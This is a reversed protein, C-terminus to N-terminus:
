HAARMLTWSYDAQGARYHCSMCSNGGAGAADSQSQFYTEMVTNTVGNVPFAAGSDQAYVGGAEMTKFSQPQTPWQTFVLQYNQWVTGALAARWSTNLALTSDPITNLRAVQVAKRASKPQLMPAMKPPRDAWGGITAPNQPNSGNNFSYKKGAPDGAAPVSNPVNDVQEFTSWIWEPFDKLKQVIHFGILGVKQPECKKTLPDLVLSDVAYYRSADDVGPVLIRWAAKLMMSGQTSPASSAPMQLPEKAALNKVLYLWSSPDADSGRIFDYQPHNFRIEYVVYNLSQDILPYSFAQNSIEVVSDGKSYRLFIKMGAPVPTTGCPSVPVMSSDWATPRQTGQDFLEYEEKYTGWVVPQGGGTAGKFVAPNDPQDPTGRPGAPAAPWNLAVFSQWSFTDFFPRAQEPTTVGPPISVTLPIHGSLIPPAPATSATTSAPGPAPASTSAQTSAPAPEPAPSQRCSVSAALAIMLVASGGSLALSTRFRTWRAM